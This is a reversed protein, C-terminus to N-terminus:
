WTLSPLGHCRGCWGTHPSVGLVPSAGLLVGRHRVPLDHLGDGAQQEAHEHRDQRGRDDGVGERVDDAIEAAALGGVGPDDGGGEQRHGRGGGQPALEGVQVALLREDLYGEDDVHQAGRGGTERLVGAHQDGATDDLADADATQGGERLDDHGRHDGRTLAATVGAVEARGEGDGGDAARQEATDDGVGRPQAPAPAEVDADGEGDDRQDHQLLRQM